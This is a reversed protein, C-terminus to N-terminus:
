STLCNIISVMGSLPSFLKFLKVKFARHLSFLDQLVHTDVSLVNWLSTGNVPLLQALCRCFVGLHNSFLSHLAIIPFTTGYTHLNWVENLSKFTLIDVGQTPDSSQNTDLAATVSKSYILQGYTRTLLRAAVNQVLQLRQLM